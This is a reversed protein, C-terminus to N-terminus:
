NNGSLPWSARITTGKGKASEVEFLGGSLETRERISRLGLGGWPNRKVPKMVLERIGMAKAKEPTIHESFGTCIIIPMELRIRLLEQALKDGTMFPMTMDRIM